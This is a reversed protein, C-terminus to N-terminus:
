EAGFRLHKRSVVAWKKTEPHREMARASTLIICHTYKELGVIDGVAMNEPELDGVGPLNETGTVFGFGANGGGWVTCYHESPTPLSASITSTHWRHHTFALRANLLRQPFHSRTAIGGGAVVQRIGKMENGTENGGGIYTIKTYRAQDQSLRIPMRAVRVFIAAKRCEAGLRFVAIGTRYLSVTSPHAM